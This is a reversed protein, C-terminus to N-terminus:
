HQKYLFLDKIYPFQYHSYLLLIILCRKYVNHVLKLRLLNLTEKLFTSVYINNGPIFVVFQM